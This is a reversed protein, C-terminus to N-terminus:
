IEDRSIDKASITYDVGSSGKDDKAKGRARFSFSAVLILLALSLIAALLYGQLDSGPDIRALMVFSEVSGMLMVCLVIAAVSLIKRM